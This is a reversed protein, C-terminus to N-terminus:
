DSPVCVSLLQSVRLSVRNTWLSLAAANLWRVTLPSLPHVHPKYSLQYLMLNHIQFIHPRTGGKWGFLFQGRQPSHWKSDSDSDNDYEDYGYPDEPGHNGENNLTETTYTPKDYEYKSM